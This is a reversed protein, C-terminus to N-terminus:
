KSEKNSLIDYQSLTTLINEKIFSNAFFITYRNVEIVYWHINLIHNVLLFCHFSAVLNSCNVALNFRYHLDLTALDPRILIEVAPIM